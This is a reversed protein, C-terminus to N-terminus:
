ARKGPTDDTVCLAHRGRKDTFESHPIHSAIDKAVLISGDYRTINFYFIPHFVYRREEFVSLVYEGTHEKPTPFM